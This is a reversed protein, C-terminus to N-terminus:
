RRETGSTLIVIHSAIQGLNGPSLLFRESFNLSYGSVM